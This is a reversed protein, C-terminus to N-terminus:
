LDKLMAPKKKREWKENIRGECYTLDGWKQPPRVEKKVLTTLTANDIQFGYFFYAIFDWWAM